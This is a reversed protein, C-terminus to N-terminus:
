GFCIDINLQVMQNNILTCEFPIVLCFKLMALPPNKSGTHPYLKSQDQYMDMRFIYSDLSQSIPQQQWGSEKARGM